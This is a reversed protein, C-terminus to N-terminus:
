YEILAEISNIPQVVLEEGRGWVVSPPSDIELRDVEFRVIREERLGCTGRLLARILLCEMNDILFYCTWFWFVRMVFGVGM